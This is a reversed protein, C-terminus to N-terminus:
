KDDIRDIYEKILPKDELSKALKIEGKIIPSYNIM